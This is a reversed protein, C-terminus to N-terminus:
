WYSGAVHLPHNEMRVTTNLVLSREKRMAATEEKPKWRRKSKQKRM